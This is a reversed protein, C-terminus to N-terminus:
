RDNSIMTVSHTQDVRWIDLDDDDDLNAVAYAIFETPTVEPPPLFDPLDDFYRAGRLVDDGMFYTYRQNEEVVSFGIEKFTAGYGRSIAFFGVQATALAQLSLRAEIQKAKINAKEYNDVQQECGSIFAICAVLCVASSIFTRTM